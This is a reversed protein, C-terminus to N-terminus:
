SRYEWTAPRITFSTDRQMRASIPTPRLAGMLSGCKSECLNGSDSLARPPPTSPAETGSTWMTLCCVVLVVLKKM